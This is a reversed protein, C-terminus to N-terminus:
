RAFLARDAPWTPRSDLRVLAPLAPQVSNMWSRAQGILDGTQRICLMKLEPEPAHGVIGLPDFYAAPRGAALAALVPSTCPMGIAADCAAVPLFPDCNVDALLIRGRRIYDGDEDILGLLAQPSPRYRAGIERKLKILISIEPIADLLQAIGSFFAEGFKMEISVPGGGFEHRWADDVTPVDFVSILFGADPLQLRQRAESRTAEMLQVDGCMM